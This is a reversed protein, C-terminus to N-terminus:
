FTEAAETQWPSPFMPKRNDLRIYAVCFLDFDPLILQHFEEDTKARDAVDILRQFIAYNHNFRMDTASHEEVTKKADVLVQGLDFM